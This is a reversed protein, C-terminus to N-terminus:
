KLECLIFKQLGFCIFWETHLALTQKPRNKCKKLCVNRQSSHFIFPHWPISIARQSLSAFVRHSKKTKFYIVVDINLVATVCVCPFSISICTLNTVTTIFQRSYEIWVCLIRDDRIKHELSMEFIIVILRHWIDYVLFLWFLQRSLLVWVYWISISYLHRHKCGLFFAISSM